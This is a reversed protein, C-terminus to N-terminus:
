AGGHSPAGQLLREEITRCIHSRPVGSNLSKELSETCKDGLAHRLDPLVRSNIVASCMGSGSTEGYLATGNRYHLASSFFRAIIRGSGQCSVLMLCRACNMATVLMCEPPPVHHALKVRDLAVTSAQLFLAYGLFHEKTPSMSQSLFPFQCVSSFFAGASICESGTKIYWRMLYSAYPMTDLDRQLKLLTAAIIGFAKKPLWAPVGESTHPLWVCLAMWIITQPGSSCAQLDPTMDFHSYFASEDLAKFLHATSWSAVDEFSHMCRKFREMMEESMRAFHILLAL